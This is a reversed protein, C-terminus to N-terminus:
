LLKYGSACLKTIYFHMFICVNQVNTSLIDLKCIYVGNLFEFVCVRVTGGLRGSCVMGVNFERHFCARAFVVCVNDCM